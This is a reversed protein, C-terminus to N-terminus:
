APVVDTLWGRATALARADRGPVTEPVDQVDWPWDSRNRRATRADRIGDIFRRRALVPRWSTSRLGFGAGTLIEGMGPLHAAGWVLVAHQGTALVADMVHQNRAHLLVAENKLRGTGVVKGSTALVPAIAPRLLAAITTTAARDVVPPGATLLRRMAQPDEAKELMQEVTLDVNRWHEERPLAISQHVLDTFVDHLVLTQLLKTGPTTGDAYATGEAYVTCGDDELEAIIAATDAYFRPDALHAMAILTIVRGGDSWNQVPVELAHRTTRIFASM